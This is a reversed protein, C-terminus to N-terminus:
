REGKFKRYIGPLASIASKVMIAWYWMGWASFMILLATGPQIQGDITIISIGTLKALIVPWTPGEITGPLAHYTINMTELPIM